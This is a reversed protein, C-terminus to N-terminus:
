HFLVIGVVVYHLPCNSIAVTVVTTTSYFTSLVFYDYFYILYRLKWGDAKAFYRRFHEFMQKTGNITEADVWHVCLFFQQLENPFPIRSRRRLPRLMSPISLGPESSAEAKIGENHMPRLHLRETGRRPVPKLQQLIVRPRTRAYSVVHRPLARRRARPTAQTKQKGRSPCPSVTTLNQDSACPDFASCRPYVVPILRGDDDDRFIM